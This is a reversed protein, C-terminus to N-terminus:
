DRVEIDLFKSNLIEGSGPGWTKFGMGDEVAGLELKELSEEKCRSSGRRELCPLRWVAVSLRDPWGSGPARIIIYVKYISLRLSYVGACSSKGYSLFEIFLLDRLWTRAVQRCQNLLGERATSPPTGQAPYRPRWFGVLSHLPCIFDWWTQLSNWPRGLGRWTLAEQYVNGPHWVGNWSHERTKPQLNNLM